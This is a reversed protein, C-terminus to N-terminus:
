IGFRVGLGPGGAVRNRPLGTRLQDFVNALFVILIQRVHDPFLDRSLLHSFGGVMGSWSQRPETLETYLRIALVSGRCDHLPREIKECSRASPAAEPLWGWRTRRGPIASHLM